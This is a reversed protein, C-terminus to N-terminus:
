GPRQRDDARHDHQQHKGHQDSTPRVQRDAEVIPDAHARLLGMIFTDEENRGSIDGGGSHGPIKFSVIGDVTQVFNGIIYPRSPPPEPFSLDGDYLRALDDPLLPRHHHAAQQHLTKLPM